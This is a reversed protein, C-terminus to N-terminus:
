ELFFIYFNSTYSEEQDLLIGKIKLDSIFLSDVNVVNLKKRLSLKWIKM